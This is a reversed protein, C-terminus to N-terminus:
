FHIPQFLSCFIKFFYFFSIYDFPNYFIFAQQRNNWDIDSIHVLGDVGQPLTVFLGFEIVNQIVGEVVSDIKLTKAVEDWPNATLEKVSLSIRRKDKDIEKVVVKIDDGVKQTIDEIGTIKKSWSIETNYVLGEIGKEIEVFIGYAAISIIKGNVISGIKYKKIGEWPDATKQKLGLSVRNKELDFDMIVVEITDGIACAESPHSIRTWTIDTIHLLGDIGGIDVFVGYDTINKVIGKVINGKKIKKLNEARKELRDMELLARRSIVINARKKNYKLVKFDFTKGMVEELNLIPKLDVQSDPLFANVGVDVRMGGKIKELITGEITTEKKYAEQVQKWIHVIEFKKKSAKIQGESDELREVYIEEEKGMETSLNGERDAFQEKPILAISKYGVDVGVFDDSISIVNGSIINGNDFKNKSQFKELKFDGKFNFQINSM